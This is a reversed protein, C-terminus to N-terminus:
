VTAHHLSARKTVARKKPCLDNSLTPKLHKTSSTLRTTNGFIGVLSKDWKRARKHCVRPRRPVPTHRRDRPRCYSQRARADAGVGPWPSAACPTAQRKAIRAGLRPSCCIRPMNHRAVDTAARLKGRTTSSCKVCRLTMDAANDRTAGEEGVRNWRLQCHRSGSRRHRECDNPRTHHAATTTCGSLRLVTPLGALAATLGIGPARRQTAPRRAVCGRRPRSETRDGRPDGARSPGTQSSGGM